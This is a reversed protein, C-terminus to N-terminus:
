PLEKSFEGLKTKMSMVNAWLQLSLNVGKQTPCISLYRIYIKAPGVEFIDINGPMYCESLVTICQEWEKNGYAIRLCVQGNEFRVSIDFDGWNPIQIEPFKIKPFWSELSMDTESNDVMSNLEELELIVYTKGNREFSTVLECKKESM